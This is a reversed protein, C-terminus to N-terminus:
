FNMSTSSKPYIFVRSNEIILKRGTPWSLWERTKPKRTTTPKTTTEPHKTTTPKTNYIRHKPDLLGWKSRPGYLYNVAMIDDKDLETTEGTYWPYMVTTNQSSHGIGLSHGFEHMAIAYLSVGKDEEQWVTWKEGLDFHADGGRDVGPYFAHALVKGPGDFNYSDNHNGGAFKITINAEDESYVREFKLLATSAWQDITTYFLSEMTDLSMTTNIDKFNSTDFYWTIITENLDNKSTTWKNRTSYRKHRPQFSSKVGCRSLHFLNITNEDMIGTEELGADRQLQKIGDSVSYFNQVDSDEIDNEQAEIYGFRILYDIICQDDCTNVKTSPLPRCNSQYVYIICLFALLRM